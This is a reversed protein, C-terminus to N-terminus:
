VCFVMNNYQIILKLKRLLDHVKNSNYSFLFSFFFQFFKVNRPTKGPKELSTMM